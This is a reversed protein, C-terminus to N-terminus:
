LTLNTDVITAQLAFMALQMLLMRMHCLEEFSLFKEEKTLGAYVLQAFLMMSFLTLITIKNMKIM